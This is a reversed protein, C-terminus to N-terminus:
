ELELKYGYTPWSIIRIPFPALKLRLVFIMRRLVDINEVGGDERDGWVFDALEVRSMWRKSAALALLVRTQSKGHCIETGDFGAHWNKCDVVFGPRRISGTTLIM